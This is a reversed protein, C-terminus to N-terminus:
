NKRKTKLYGEPTAIADLPVDWAAQPLHAVEQCSHALGVLLPRRARSKSTDFTRDYFGGGMGLRGGQRDFGVLPMLVLDVAWPQIQRHRCLGYGRLKPERIGLRNKILPTQGPIWRVFWLLRPQFPHLVPLYVAKNLATAMKALPEPDLEGDNAWYVVLTKAQIFGPQQRLHRVLQLAAQQQQAKTLSRRKARLTQRLQQRQRNSPTPM